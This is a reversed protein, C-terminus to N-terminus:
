KITDLIGEKYPIFSGAKGTTTVLFETAYPRGSAKRFDIFRQTKLSIHLWVSGAATMEFICQGIDELNLGEVKGQVIDLYIGKLAKLKSDRTPNKPDPSMNLDCAELHAHQSTKSGGIATNLEPCRVGSNIRLANFGHYKIMHTRLPELIKTSLEQLVDFKEIAFKTNLPIFKSPNTNTVCFEKLKFHESVKTNENINEKNM